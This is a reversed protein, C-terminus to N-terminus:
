GAMLWRSKRSRSNQHLVVYRELMMDYFPEESFVKGDPGRVYIMKLAPAEAELADMCGIQHLIRAGNGWLSISAGWDPAVVGKELVVHDIGARQLAHTFALGAAGAGAIIVRFPRPSAPEASATPAASEQAM